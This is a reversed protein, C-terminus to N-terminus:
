DLDAWEDNDPKHKAVGPIIVIRGDPDIQIKAIALGASLIGAAARKIDSQKFRVPATM